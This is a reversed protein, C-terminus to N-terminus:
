GFRQQLFQLQQNIQLQAKEMNVFQDIMRQRSDLVLREQAAMQDSLDAIQLDLNNGKKELRGDDGVEQDLFDGLKVAFGTTANAFFNRVDSLNGALADDLETDDTLKLNNNNGNGDIGIAELRKFTGTLSDEGAMVRRRLDSAIGYADAEGALTGATVVGKADTTSATNTDILGQVRNYDDIFDTIAKRIKSSDSVVSVDFDAEDLVTVSLGTIGSNDASIKNSHSAIQGGGNVTYLLDDGRTLTGSSLGTAALFNGTVDELAIGMDGTAKNTLLFRDNASDYSASVGAQSDNIRKIVSAMTDTGANFAIEVGNIKFKGAGAGGDSIATTLNASSLTAATRVSGLRASSTTTDTGNNSLRAAQLFNSTDTASGLVIEEHSASTLTIRDTASSYSATVDDDTADAIKSFVDSLKDTTAISIQHGNVTFTGATITVPFPATSISVNSVDNTTSLPAGVNSAGQRVSATALQQIHFAYTGMAAGASVSASALATDSVRALRADYLSSDALTTMRNRLVSLQTSISDYASRRQQITQQEVLMQKQPSREVDALQDVLSRWDFGSALGSVGM